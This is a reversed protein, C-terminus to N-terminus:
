IRDTDLFWAILFSVDRDRDHKRSPNRIRGIVMPDSRKERRAPMVGIEDFIKLALAQQTATLVEPKALAFPFDIEDRFGDSTTQYFVKDKGGDAYTGTRYKEVLQPNEYDGVRVPLVSPEIPQLNDHHGWTQEKDYTNTRSKQPATKRRIAFVDMPMNPIIYYGAKVAEGVKEFFQARRTASNLHKIILETRMGAVTAIRVNEKLEECKQREAQLKAQAWGILQQQCAELQGPHLAVLRLDHDEVKVLAEVSDEKKATLEVATEKWTSGHVILSITPQSVGFARGLSCQSEGKSHRERIERVKDRDLKAARHLVTTTM